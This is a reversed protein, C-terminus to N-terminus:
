SFWATHWLSHLILGDLYGRKPPELSVLQLNLFLWDNFYLPLLFLQQPLISLRFLFSLTVLQWQLVFGLDSVFLEDFCSKFLDIRHRLGSSVSLFSDGFLLLDHLFHLLGDLGFELTFVFTLLWFFWFFLWRFWRRFGLSHWRGDNFLNSIKILM